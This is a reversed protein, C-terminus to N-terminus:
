KSVNEPKLGTLDLLPRREQAIDVLNIWTTGGWDSIHIWHSFLNLRFNISIIFFQLIGGM